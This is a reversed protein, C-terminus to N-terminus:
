LLDPRFKVRIQGGSAAINICNSTLNIRVWKAWRLGFRLGIQGGPDLDWGSKIVHAWIDAWNPWRRGFGFGIQGGPGLDWGSKIM